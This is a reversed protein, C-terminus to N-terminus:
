EKKSVHWLCIYMFCNDNYKFQLLKASSYCMATSMHGSRGIDLEIFGHWRSSALVLSLIGSVHQTKTFLNIQSGAMWYFLLWCGMVPVCCLRGKYCQWMNLISSFDWYQLTMLYSIFRSFVRTFTVRCGLLWCDLSLFFFHLMNWKHMYIHSYPQNLACGIPNDPLCPMAPM